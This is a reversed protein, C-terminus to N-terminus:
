VVLQSGVPHLLAGMRVLTNSLKKHRHGLAGSAVKLECQFLTHVKDLQRNHEMAQIESGFSIVLCLM